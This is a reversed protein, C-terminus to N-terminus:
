ARRGRWVRWRLRRLTAGLQVLLTAALILAAGAWGAATLREGLVLYAALAAFVTEMSVIVAAESPPTYQLALTLVTFTLASSLLGVYAIDVAAVSLGEATTTELLAGLCGAMAAVVAFQIATFAIPRRYPSAHGTVVVHIAWFLASLAVLRDGASFAALSGGGGLLWTGAVSLVVAPWVVPAPVRGSWAWVVFPTLVVYLATLFSANTVTASRLGTQQLWAAAFFALGGCVAVLWFGVPAPATARHLERVALPALALAAVLSRAAIFALPGIHDM